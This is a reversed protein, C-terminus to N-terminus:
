PYVLSATVTAGATPTRTTNDIVKVPTGDNTCREAALGYQYGPALGEFTVIDASTTESATAMLSRVILPQSGTSGTNVSERVEGWTAQSTTSVPTISLALSGPTASSATFVLDSATFTGPTIASIPNAAQAPYSTTTDGPHSVIYHTGTVLGELTYHGNADTFARRQINAVLNGDVTEAYVEIGALNGSATGAHGTLTVSSASDVVNGSAMCTYSTGSHTVRPQIAGTGSLMILATTTVQDTVGIYGTVTTTSPMTLVGATGGTTTIYAPQKTQDSYNVTKGWTIRFGTYTGTAVPGSALMTANGNQLANLDLTRQVSGLTTWTTADRCVEIKEITAVVNKYGPISDSGLRISLTGSPATSSSGSGGGCGLLLCALGLAIPMISKPAIWRHPTSSNQHSM